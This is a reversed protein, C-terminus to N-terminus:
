HMVINEADEDLSVTFAPAHKSLLEMLKHDFNYKVRCENDFLMVAENGPECAPWRPLSPTSPNGHRAFSVWAGCVKEQLRDTEGPVNCIPVRDINHFVFAIESCHWATKGGEYPFEYNFLYSYVPAERHVSKKAIFDKSAPRFISDLSLVDALCNGPYAKEFEAAIEEADEQFCKKLLKMIEERGLTDRNELVPRFDFEGFVSGVMVPIKKAADIFGVKRPDGAYWSNARPQCGIYYGKEQLEPSVKNYAEALFYYPVTELEEVKKLKLESLLAEALATGDDTAERDFNDLVGSQIIGKHFLGEAEPTNMLTFVKMGGGSQGFLTVNDPDGGFGAINDRIWRLAAVLDANGVNASNYYKEGYASLDLYGLINLRHNLTVVVVDGYESLHDGEYAVQEISSGAFFGGGHLWVMVPKKAERDLSQTWINLYQCDEDMPWYRHQLMVEVMPHDQKLMPCVYGYALANKIGKWPEVEKPMRFRDANAYKIGHFTYTSNVKFGRIKGAKTQVVPETKSCYFCNSM